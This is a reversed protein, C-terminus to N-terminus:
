ADCYLDANTNVDVDNIPKNGLQLMPKLCNPIDHICPQGSAKPNEGPQLDANASIVRRKKTGNIYPPLIHNYLEVLHNSALLLRLCCVACLLNASMDTKVVLKDYMCTVAVRVVVAARTAPAM